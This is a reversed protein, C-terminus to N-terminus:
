SCVMVCHCQFAHVPLPLKLQTLRNPVICREQLKEMGRERPKALFQARFRRNLALDIRSGWCRGIPKMKDISAFM